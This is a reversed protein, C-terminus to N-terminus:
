DPEINEALDYQNPDAGNLAISQGGHLDLSLYTGRELHANGTFVAIEGPLNDLNVRIVTFGSATIASDGFRTTVQSSSGNGGLEFYGLGSELVLDAKSVGGEQHLAAIRMSSNPSIRAVTGDDFQLEARGDDKTAILTGEFLPTNVLAPDALIQNGQTLVVDGQVYSLRAARANPNPQSPPDQEQARIAVGSALLIALAWAGAASTKWIEKVFKM